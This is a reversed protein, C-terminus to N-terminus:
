NHKLDIGCQSCYKANNDLIKASCNPCYKIRLLNDEDKKSLNNEIPIAYRKEKNQKFSFPLVFIVPIFFFFDVTFTLILFFTFLVLFFLNIIIRNKISM